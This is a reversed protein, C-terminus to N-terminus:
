KAAKAARERKWKEDAHKRRIEAQHEGVARRAGCAYLMARGEGETTPMKDAAVGNARLRKRTRDGLPASGTVDSYDVLEVGPVVRLASECIRRAEDVDRVPRRDGLRHCSVEPPGCVWPVGPPGHPAPMIVVQWPHWGQQGPRVLGVTAGPPRGDRVVVLGASWDRRDEDGREPPGQYWGIPRPRPGQGVAWPLIEVQYGHVGLIQLKAEEHEEKSRRILEVPGHILEGSAWLVRVVVGAAVVEGLGLEPRHRHVVTEGPMLPRKKSPDKEVAPRESLDAERALDFDIRGGTFDLVLCDQKGRYSRLGRGLMQLGVIPSDSPRCVLLADAIPADFGERILDCSCLVDIKGARFLDINRDRERWDTMGDVAVARVGVARLATALMEAHARDIGFALGHRGRCRSLWEQAVVDCVERSDIRRIADGKKATELDFRVMSPPVLVGDEVGDAMTYSYVLADYVQGLGETEGGSGARYPTATLGVSMLPRTKGAAKRSERVADLVDIYGDAPAHHAEDIIVVDFIGMAKLRRKQRMSQVSAVVIAAGLDNSEAMVMGPRGRGPVACIRAHLDNVLGELHVLILVRSGKAEARRAFGAIFDGKGSGTAVSLLQRHCGEGWATLVAELAEQQWRRPSFGPRMPLVPPLSM